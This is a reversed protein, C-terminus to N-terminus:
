VTTLSFSLICCLYVFQRTLVLHMKKVCIEGTIGLRGSPRPNDVSHGHFM